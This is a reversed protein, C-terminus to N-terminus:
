PMSSIGSSTKATRSNSTASFACSIFGQLAAKRPSLRSRRTVSMERPTPSPAVVPTRLQLRSKSAAIGEAITRPGAHSLDILLRRGNLEIIAEQGLSSLGGDALEICGDGMLNRRNYTLQFIRVGLGQFVNLRSLDGDLMSTDQFGYILGLRRTSKALRLDGASLVKLFAEPHLQIERDIRAIGQVAEEFRHPGNGVEGVTVNAATLGSARADTIVRASWTDNPSEAPKFEGPGGLADILMAGEYSAISYGDRPGAFVPSSLVAAGAAVMFRRRDWM